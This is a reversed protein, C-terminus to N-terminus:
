GERESEGATYKIPLWSRYRRVAVLDTPALEGDPVFAFVLNGSRSMVGIRELTSCIADEADADQRISDGTLCLLLAEILEQRARGTWQEAGVTALRDALHEIRAPHRSAGLEAITGIAIDSPPVVKAADASCVGPHTEHV